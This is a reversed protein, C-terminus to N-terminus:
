LRRPSVSPPEPKKLVNVGLSELAPALDRIRLVAPLEGATTVAFGFTSLPRLNGHAARLTIMRSQFASGTHVGDAVSILVDPKHQFQENLGRWLRDVADPYVHDITAQMLVDDRVYGDPNVKGAENLVALVPNLQLPDGELAEYRYGEAARSIRARGDPSLVIISSESDRYAALEMGEIRMVDQAVAEPMRTYIASCTAMAFEPLVIDRPGNIRNTVNWGAKRLLDAIPIRRSTVLNHGHDSLLTIRVRGRTLYMMEHCFRNIRSIGEAHGERGRLAGLASTGVCYGIYMPNSSALFGDQIQRLEHDFWSLQDLYASAHALHDLAYDVREHWIAVGAKLYVDYADTERGREYDYYDSEIAVGPTLHFFDVLCPDTMVPFPAIVATPRPFFRYQGQEWAERVMSAPVSDLIIVLDRRETAPISALIVEDAVRQGPQAGYGLAVVRGQPDLREYYDPRGDGTSDYWHLLVQDALHEIQQPAPPFLRPGPGACGAQFSVLVAIGIGALMMPHSGCWAFKRM